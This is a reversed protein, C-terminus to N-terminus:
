PIDSHVEFLTAELCESEAPPGPAEEASKAGTPDGPGRKERLLRTGETGILQITKLSFVTIQKM